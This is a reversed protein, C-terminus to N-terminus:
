RKSGYGISCSAAPQQLRIRSGDVKPSRGPPGLFDLLTQSLRSIAAANKLECEWIVLCRWGAETLEEIAALDRQKNRALKAAWFEKNSAPTTSKRCRPDEHSHWFCGHVFIVARRGAFVLDPTGPLRRDHLRYRYGLRHALRRVVLEIRTDKSRVRAMRASRAAPTLIDM